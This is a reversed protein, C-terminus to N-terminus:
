GNSVVKLQQYEPVDSFLLPLPFNLTNAIATAVPLSTCRREIVGVVFPTTVCLDRAIAKPPVGENNLKTLMNKANM